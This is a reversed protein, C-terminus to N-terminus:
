EVVWSSMSTVRWVIAARFAASFLRVIYMPQFSHSTSSKTLVLFQLSNLFSLRTAPNSLMNLTHCAPAAEEKHERDLEPDKARSAVWWVCVVVLKFVELFQSHGREVLHEASPCHSLVALHWFTNEIGRQTKLWRVFAGNLYWVREVSDKGPGTKTQDNARAVPALSLNALGGQRGKWSTNNM